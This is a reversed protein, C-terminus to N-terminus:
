KCVWAPQWCSTDINTGQAYSSGCKVKWDDSGYRLPRASGPQPGSANKACGISTSADLDILNESVNKLGGTVSAKAHPHVEEHLAKTVTKKSTDATPRPPPDCVIEEIASNFSVEEDPLIPEKNDDGYHFHESGAPAATDKSFYQMCDLQKELEINKESEEALKSELEAVRRALVENALTESVRPAPLQQFTVNSDSKFSSPVNNFDTCSKFAENESNAQDLQRLLARNELALSASGSEALRVRQDAEYELKSRLIAEEQLLEQFRVNDNMQGIVQNESLLM